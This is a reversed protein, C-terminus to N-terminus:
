HAIKKMNKIIPEKIKYNLRKYGAGHSNKKYFEWVDYGLIKSMQKYKQKLDKNARAELCFFETTVSNAGCKSAKRILTPYDDSLGIIYPRLRLTVNLGADTLRKMAKFREHPTPVDQEILHAKKEDNTIISIKFHWNHTHKKIINMYRPDKTFFVGKTSISLPYDIKDFFKLLKLSVGYKKENDDFADALGGWQMTIKNKIYPYFQKNQQTKSRSKNSINFLNKIKEPNVSRVTRNWSNQNEKYGSVCHSKQFFAFCYLCNFSCSSYTDFTMPMSCDCIEGSWRPSLYDKKLKTKNENKKM